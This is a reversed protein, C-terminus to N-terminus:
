GREFPAVYTTLATWQSMVGCDSLLNVPVRATFPSLYPYCDYTNETQLCLKNGAASWTADVVTKGSPSSIHAIGGRDFIVTNVIGNTEVQVQQGIIESGPVWQASAVSAVSLATLGVLTRAIM